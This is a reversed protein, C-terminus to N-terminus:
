TVAQLVEDMSIPKFQVKNQMDSKITYEEM